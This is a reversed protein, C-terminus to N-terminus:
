NEFIEQEIKIYKENNDFSILAGFPLITHPQSHGININAMIPVNLSQLEKAIVKNYDEFNVNDEPKGVLVGNCSSFLGGNKLDILMKEFEKPSIKEESTEILVIKNQSKVIFNFLSSEGNEKLMLEKHLVEICGGFLNGSVKGSKCLPLFGINEKVSERPINIQSSSYDKREKYWVDSSKIIRGKQFGFLTKFENLSYPLMEKDLECFDSLFSMGYFTKLGLSNLLLHHSTTDSFGVFIKPNEKVINLFEEDLLLFSNVLYGDNGGIACIIAKISKDKFAWKLDEARKKPNNKIYDIGKLANPSFCIELGLEQMRKIGLNLEHSVFEEGLVGSSLSVIAVKDGQKLNKM